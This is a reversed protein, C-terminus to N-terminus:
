PITQNLLYMEFVSWAFWFLSIPMLICASVVVKLRSEVPPTAVGRREIGPLFIRDSMNVLFTYPLIALLMGFLIGLFMLGCYQFPINHQDIFVVPYAEFFLYIIGYALSVWMAAGQVIPERVIMALPRVIHGQLLQVTSKSHLEHAARANQQGEKRLGAARKELIKPAYTEPLLFVLPICAVSMFLHLRVVWLGNGSHAAVFFGVLTGFCPGSLACFAFVTISRGLAHLDNPYIDAAVGTGNNLSCAACCGTFFRFILPAFGFGLVYVTLGTSAIDENVGYLRRIQGEGTAYVSSGFVGVFALLCILAIVRHKKGSTWNRPDEPDDPTFVVIENDLSKSARQLDTGSAM